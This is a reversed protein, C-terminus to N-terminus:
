NISICMKSVSNIYKYIETELIKIFIEAAVSKKEKHISYIEIDNDKFWKKLSSNYFESEKAVRINDPKRESKDLIKQFAYVISFCKKDKLPNVWTYKSSIDVVCLLFRFGKDFNSILQMDALDAGWINDKFRSFVKRKLFKEIIPKHLEKALKENLDLPVNVGCGKTKKDFFKYIMSAIGRQYGAYKPNKAHNFAKDKLVKDSATRRAIDKCVGYAM